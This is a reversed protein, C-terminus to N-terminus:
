NYRRVKVKFYTLKKSREDDIHIVRAEELKNGKGDYTRFVEGMRLPFDKKAKWVQITM